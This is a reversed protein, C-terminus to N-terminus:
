QTRSGNESRLPRRSEGQNKYENRESGIIRANDWNIIRNNRKCHGSIASKFNEWEVDEKLTRTLRGATEKEYGKQHEKKRINFTRGTEGINTGHDAYWHDHSMCEQKEMCQLISCNLVGAILFLQYFCMLLM